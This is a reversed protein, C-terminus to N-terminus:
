AWWSAPRAPPRGAASRTRSTPRSGGESGPTPSPPCCRGPRGAPATWGRTARPWSAAMGDADDGDPHWDGQLLLERLWADDATTTAMGAISERRGSATPLLQPRGAATWLRLPRPRAGGLVRTVESPQALGARDAGREGPQGPPLGPVQPCGSSASAGCSSTTEVGEATVTAGLHGALALVASVIADTPRDDPLRAVFSRDLKFAQPTRERLAAFSSYGTGFDDVALTVGAATFRELAARAGPEMACSETMELELADAPLGVGTSCRWCRAPRLRRPAASPDLRQGGRAPSLHASSGDGSRAQTCAQELVQMGLEHILGTEEAAAIFEAAPVDGREADHWGPSRRWAALRGDAM